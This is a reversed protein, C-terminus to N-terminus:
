NGKFISANLIIESEKLYTIAMTFPVKRIILNEIGTNCPIVIQIVGEGLIVSRPAAGPTFTRQDRFM